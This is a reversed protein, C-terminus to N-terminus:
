NVVELLLPPPAFITNIMKRETNVLKLIVYYITVDYKGVVLIKICKKGAGPIKLIEDMGKMPKQPRRMAEKVMRTWVLDTYYQMLPFNLGEELWDHKLFDKFNRELSDKIRSQFDAIGQFYFSM